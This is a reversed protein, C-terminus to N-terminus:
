SSRTRQYSATWGFLWDVVVIIIFVVVCLDGEGIMGEEGYEVSM